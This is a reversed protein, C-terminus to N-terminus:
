NSAINHVTMVATWGLNSLSKDAVLLSQLVGLCPLVNGM